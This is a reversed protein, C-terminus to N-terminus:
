ALDTSTAIVVGSPSTIRMRRADLLSRAVGTAWAGGTAEEATWRGVEVWTGDDDELECVWVGPWDHDQLVLVVKPSPEAVLEVTGLSRGDRHHVAAPGTSDGHPRTAVIGIVVFLLAAVAAVTAQRRRSPRTRTPLTARMGIVARAEFGAPPEAGPALELVADVVTTLERLLAGCRTCAAAHVVLRDSEPSPSFGLALEEAAEEFEVCSVTM